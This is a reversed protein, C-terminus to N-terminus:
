ERPWPARYALERDRVKTVLPLKLFIFLDKPNLSYYTSCILLESKSFTSLSYYDSRLQGPRCQAKAGSTLILNPTNGNIGGFLFMSTGIGELVRATVLSLFNTSLAGILLGLMLIGLIILLIKKGYADFLKGAIPTMVVVAVLSAALIWSSDEFSLNLDVIFEPIAPLLMTESSM